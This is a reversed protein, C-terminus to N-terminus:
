GPIVILVAPNHYGRLQPTKLQPTLQNTGLQPRKLVDVQVGWVLVTCPVTPIEDYIPAIVRPAHRAFGGIEQDRERRIRRRTRSRGQIM